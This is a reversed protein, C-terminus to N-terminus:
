QGLRFCVAIPTASISIVFYQVPLSDLPAFFFPHWDFIDKFHKSTAPTFIDLKAM